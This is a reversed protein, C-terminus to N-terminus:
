VDIPDGSVQLKRGIYERQLAILLCARELFPSTLSNVFDSTVVPPKKLVILACFVEKNGFYSIDEAKKIRM